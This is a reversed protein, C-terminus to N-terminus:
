VNPTEDHLNLVTVEIGGNSNEIPIKWFAAVAASDIGLGAVHSASLCFINPAIVDTAANVSVDSEKGDGRNMNESGALACYAYAHCHPFCGKKKSQIKIM